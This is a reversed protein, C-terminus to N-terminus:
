RWRGPWPGGGAVPPAHRRQQPRRRPPQRAQSHRGRSGAGISGAAVVATAGAAMGATAEDTDVPVLLRYGRRPLTEIYTPKETPDGLTDRLRSVVAHLGHEFDVFTDDPWLRHRLEERTVVEGPRELLFLLTQLPQEQLRVLGGIGRLEGSRPDLEFPGFRYRRPTAMAPDYDRM